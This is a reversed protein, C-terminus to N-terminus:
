AHLFELLVQSAGDGARPPLKIMRTYGGPRAAFRPALTSLVRDATKPSAFTRILQRRAALSNRKGLTVAREVLPRVARAKAPTTRIREHEILSIALARLLARRPGAKRDLTPTVNRHRM